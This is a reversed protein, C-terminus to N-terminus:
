VTPRTNVVSEEVSVPFDFVIREYLAVPRVEKFSISGGRSNNVGKVLKELKIIGLGELIRVDRRVVSYDKQTLNALETLNVPKKKVLTAFLSLRNQNMSTVLVEISNSRVIHSQEIPQKKEDV